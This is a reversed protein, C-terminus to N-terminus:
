ASGHRQLLENIRKLLAEIDLPKTMFKLNEEAVIKNTIINDTHGSIFVVMFNPQDKRIIDYVEWGNKKPMVVDLLALNIIHRNDLYVSLAEAGDNAQLVNIGKQKLAMSISERILKDDDALLITPSANDAAYDPLQYIDQEEQCRDVMVPLYIKFTTGQGVQSSIDLYGNHERAIRSIISLGLGTGKKKEKTTYFPECLLSMNAASIGEGSDIVSLVMYRGSPITSIDGIYNHDLEQLRTTIVLSGGNPMADKANTCLNILIQEIQHPDALIPRDDDTLDIEWVIHGPILVKIIDFINKVIENLYTKKPNIIQRQGFSLLNSTLNKGLKASIIIHKIYNQIQLNNEDVEDHLLHTFTVISTLVNNFDHAIGGAFHGLCEMKQAQLLEAVLKKRETVDQNSSRRGLFQGDIFIPSCTHSLWRIEGKKTIIRFDIDNHASSQQNDLHNRFLQREDPHIINEILSPHQLFEEKSYGTIRECSPSIFIIENEETTWYEFNYAFESVIHLKKENENITKQYIKCGTYFKIIIAGGLILMILHTIIMSWWSIVASDYYPKMPVSISTAGIINNPGNDNIKHCKICQRTAKFPRILRMFSKGKIGAIEYIEDMGGALIKLKKEEWPDPTNEPNIPTLSVSHNLVHLAKYEHYVESKMQFPSIMTLVPGELTHLDRTSFHLHPNPKNIESKVAYIEGHKFMWSQYAMTHRFISDAEIKAREIIEQHNQYLNWCASILILIIWSTLMGLFYKEPWIKEKIKKIGIKESAM